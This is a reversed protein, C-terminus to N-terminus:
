ESWWGLTLLAVFPVLALACALFAVVFMARSTTMAAGDGCHRRCLGALVSGLDNM